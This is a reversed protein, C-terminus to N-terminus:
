RAPIPQPVAVGVSQAAKVISDWVPQEIEIGEADVIEQVHTEYDGPAQVSPDGPRVKSARLYDIFAKIERNYYDRSVFALPDIVIMFAVNDFKGKAATANTGSGSLIGSLIENMVALGYGKHGQNGGVPLLLAKGDIFMQPDDVPKGARDIIWGPGAPKKRDLAQRIKNAAVVSSAFDLLVPNAGPFPFGASIPNTGMRSDIGGFPTQSKEGNHSSVFCLGILGEAAAMEPYGGVRGIHNLAHVCVASIKTQKAKAIALEMARTAGLHGFTNGANLTATSPTEKEVVIKVDTLIDKDRIRQLYRPIQRVGHSDHGRVNSLVMLKAVQEAADKPLGAAHFVDRTLARMADAKIKPM